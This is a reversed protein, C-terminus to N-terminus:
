HAVRIATMRKETTVRIISLSTTNPDSSLVPTLATDARTQELMKLVFQDDTSGSDNLHTNSDERGAQIPSSVQNSIFGANSYRVTYLDPLFFEGLFLLNTEPNGGNISAVINVTGHTYFCAPCQCDDVCCQDAINKEYM